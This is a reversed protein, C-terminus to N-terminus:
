TEDARKKWLNHCFQIGRKEIRKFHIKKIAIKEYAKNM